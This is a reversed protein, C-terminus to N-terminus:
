GDAELLGSAGGPCTGLGRVFASLDAADFQSPLRGCAVSQWDQPLEDNRGAFVVRVAPVRPDARLNAAIERGGEPFSASDVIVIDPRFVEVVTACEYESDAIKLNLDADAVRSHLRETVLKDTSLLLVKVAQRQVRQFYDCTECNESCFQGASGLKVAEYCRLARVRFVLCDRCAEDLKGHSKFQWCYQIEESVTSDGATRAPDDILQELDRRDIRHHGGATRRAPLKGSRIWKLVTDPNVSCLKAAEGTTLLRRNTTSM